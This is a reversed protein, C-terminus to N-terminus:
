WSGSDPDVVSIRWSGGVLILWSRGSPDVLICWQSGGLDVIMKVQIWWQSGSPDVVHIRCYGSSPDM